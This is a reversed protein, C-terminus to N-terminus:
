YLPIMSHWYDVKNQEFVKWLSAIFLGPIIPPFHTALSYSLFCYILSTYPRKKETGHSSNPNKRTGLTPFLCWENWALNVSWWITKGGHGSFLSILGIISFIELVSSLWVIAALTTNQMVPIMSGFYSIVYTLPKHLLSLCSSSKFSCFFEVVFHHVMKSFFYFWM